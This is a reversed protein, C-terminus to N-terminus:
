GQEVESGVMAEEVVEYLEMDLVPLGLVRDFVSPIRLQEEATDRALVVEPASSGPEAKVVSIFEEAELSLGSLATFLM